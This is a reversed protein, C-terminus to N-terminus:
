ENPLSYGFLLGNASYTAQTRSLVEEFIAFGRPDALRFTYSNLFKLHLPFELRPSTGWIGGDPLYCLSDALADWNMGWGTSGEVPHNGSPGGLCLEDGLLAILEAASRVGILDIARIHTAM